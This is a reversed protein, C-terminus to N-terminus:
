KAKLATKLELIEAEIKEVKKLYSAKMKEKKAELEAVRFKTFDKFERGNMEITKIDAMKYGKQSFNGM